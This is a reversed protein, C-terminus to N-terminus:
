QAPWRMWAATAWWAVPERRSSSTAIRKASRMSRRKPGSPVGSSGMPVWNNTGAIAPSGAAWHVQDEVMVRVPGGGERAIANNHMQVGEIGGFLRFAARADRALVITNNVFRYRGDTEGSGDGGVRIAYGAGTKRIVNGVVDSDERARKRPGDPEMELAMPNIVPQPRQAVLDPLSRRSM